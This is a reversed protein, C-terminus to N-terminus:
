QYRKICTFLHLFSKRIFGDTLQDFCTKIHSFNLGSCQDYNLLILQQGIIYSCTNIQTCDKGTLKQAEAAEATTEEGLAAKAAPQETLKDYVAKYSAASRKWGYDSNMANQVLKSWISSDEYYSLARKITFLLEHANFNTFRLGNGDGTYKDFPIVTDKLGGTERVVPITGYKLSILQSLGCAEFRSPMIFIDAGAYIKHALTENFQTNVSVKTPNRSALGRLADEYNQPGTGLVVFQVDELLMEDMIRTVLDMGKDEVLRSIMAIIPINRDVPLGLQRQLDEKDLVKGDLVSNADYKVAILEDTAPNYRQEDLGNIIGKIRDGCTRIYGDLREGYYPYTIEQAYSPSVTTIFDAYVLGSKMYNVCGDCEIRGSDFLDQPLGLIDSTISPPFIGQYKLNHVTYVTKIDKYFDDHYFCEKLFVNVMGTHWDNCHILDPKFGIHPLMALIAKSFFAFREDDDGYGYLGERKFYWENDVFFVPMGDWELKEVGFYEQRWSLDVRGEYVKEMKNRFEEGILSYKPIVLAPEVGFEKLARPLAGMVDALGGTKIFPVAESAAFLIKMM